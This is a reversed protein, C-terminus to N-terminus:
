KILIGHVYIIIRSALSDLICAHMHGRAMCAPIVVINLHSCTVTNDLAMCGDVKQKHIYVQQDAM